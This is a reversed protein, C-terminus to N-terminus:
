VTRRIPGGEDRPERPLPREVPSLDLEITFASGRGVQSEVRITGGMLEVLSRSIALGLGTGGYRRTTSTDAQEFARFLRDIDAPAIGIGTDCVTFRLGYPGREPQRAVAVTVEGQDTFKLANGVLNLLM